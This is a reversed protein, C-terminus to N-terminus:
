HEIVENIIIDDFDANQKALFEQFFEVAMEEDSAITVYSTEIGKITYIIEYEFM